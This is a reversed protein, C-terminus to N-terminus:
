NWEDPRKKTGCDYKVAYNNDLMYENVLINGVYVDALIRGYKEVSVNKLTVIKNMILAALAYRSTKALEKEIATKGKMEPADIGDLRVSFRYVPGDKDNPLKSALTFTDGDYVKVVKGATIPPVFPVTNDYNIKDLYEMDMHLCKLTELSIFNKENNIDNVNVSTSNSFFGCLCDPSFLKRLMIYCHFFLQNFIVFCFLSDIKGIIKICIKGFIRGM